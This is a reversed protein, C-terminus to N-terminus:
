YYERAAKRYAAEAAEKLMLLGLSKRKGDVTIQPNWRRGKSLWVVGKIGSTNDRRKRKNAKNEARSAMRLNGVRNDSPNGDRHDIDCDPWEGHVYLWM